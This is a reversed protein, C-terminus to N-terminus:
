FKDLQHTILADSSDGQRPTAHMLNGYCAHDNSDTLSKKILNSMLGNICKTSIHMKESFLGQVLVVM